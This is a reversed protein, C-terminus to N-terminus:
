EAKIIEETPPKPDVVVVKEKTNDKEKQDRSRRCFCVNDKLKQM